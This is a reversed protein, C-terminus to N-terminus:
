QNHVPLRPCVEVRNVDVFVISFVSNLRQTVLGPKVDIINALHEVIQKRCYSSSSRHDDM